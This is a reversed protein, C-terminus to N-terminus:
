QGLAAAAAGKGYKADFDAALKPDARLKQVAGAPPASRKLGTGQGPYIVEGTGENVLAAGQPIVQGEPGLIAPLPMPTYRKRENGRAEAAAVRADSNLEAIGLNNRGQMATVERQARGQMDAVERQTMAGIDQGRAATQAQLAANNHRGIIDAAATRVRGVPSRLMNEIERGAGTEGANFRENADKMLTKGSFGGATQGITNGGDGFSQSPGGSISGLDDRAAAASRAESLATDMGGLSSNPGFGGPGGPLVTVGMRGTGRGGAKGGTIEAGAKVDTGSYTKTKPDYTITGPAPAASEVAGAADRAAGRRAAMDAAGAAAQPIDGIGATTGAPAAPAAGDAYQASRNFGNGAILNGVRDALGFTMNNGVDQLTGLARVGIDKALQPVVTATPDIGTRQYYEDTGTNATQYAQMAATLPIAARGLGQTLSGIAKRTASTAAGGTAKAASAAAKGVDADLVANAVGTARAPISTPAAVPVKIGAKAFEKPVSDLPQAAGVPITPRYVNGAPPTAAVPPVAAPAAGVPAGGRTWGTQANYDLKPAAAGAAKRPDRYPTMTDIGAM